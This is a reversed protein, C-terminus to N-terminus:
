WTLLEALQVYSQVYTSALHDSIKKLVDAESFTADDFAPTDVLNISHDSLQFSQAARVTSTCSHLRREVAQTSGSVLNVFKCVRETVGAADDAFIPM